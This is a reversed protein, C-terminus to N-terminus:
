AAGAISDRWLAGALALMVPGIFLGLLGFTELGGITGLLVWFFGLDITSGVLAPRVIKDAVFVVSMGWIFVAIAAAGAGQAVLVLAAGAVVFYALFPIMALLGTIAGWFEASPVHAIKYALGVLVGDILAVVIMGVMIARIADTAKRFYADGRQGLKDHIFQTLRAAQPDGGRYLFFLGLITVAIIITHRLIFQGLSGAWALLSASDARHLWRTIGGPAGLVTSWQDFLWSGALPTAMLWDPPALGQNEAVVIEHAWTQAQAAVAGIAFAFPGLIFLTVLVTFLLPTVNSAFRRPLRAAFRRYFPWSALAIIFAWALPILFSHLVWLAVLLAVSTLTWAPDFKFAPM